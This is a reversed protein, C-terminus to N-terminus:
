VGAVFLLKDELFVVRANVGSFRDLLKDIEAKNLAITKIDKGEFSASIMLDEKVLDGCEILDKWKSEYSGVLTPNNIRSSSGVFKKGGVFFIDYDQIQVVNPNLGILDFPMCSLKSRLEFEVVKQKILGKTDHIENFDIPDYKLSNNKYVSFENPNIGLKESLYTKYSDESVVDKTINEIKAVEKVQTDPICQENKEVNVADEIESPKDVKGSNTNIVVEQNSLISLLDESEMRNKYVQEVVGSNDQNKNDEGLKTFKSLNM